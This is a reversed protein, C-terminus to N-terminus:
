KSYYQSQEVLQALAKMSNEMDLQSEKENPRNIAAISISADDLQTLAAENDAILEENKRLQNEYSQKSRQLASREKLIAKNSDNSPLENLRTNIYNLDISNVTKHALLISALNDIGSLYVEQAITYYREYTLQSPEFKTKLIDILTQFKHEFLEIQKIAHTNRYTELDAKLNARKEETYKEIIARLEQTYKKKFKEGAIFVQHVWSISGFGFIGLIILFITFSFGFLLGFVATGLIVPISYRVTWHNTSYQLLVKNLAQESFDSAKPVQSSNNLPLDM